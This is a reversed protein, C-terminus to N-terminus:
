ENEINIENLYEDPNKVLVDRPKSGEAPGIIEDAELQDLIRAARSYGISFRRQLLSASAKDYQCILRVVDQYLPDKGDIGTTINGKRLIMPEATVESTYQVGPNKTKLFDM